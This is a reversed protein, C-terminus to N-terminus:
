LSIAATGAVAVLAGIWAMKVPAVGSRIWVMPLIMIPTMSSLTTVIGVNGNTRAGMLLAMGLTTGFFSSGVAIAADKMRFRYHRHFAQIPLLALAVAGTMAFAALMQWRALRLVDVRGKLESVLMGSLAICAAASLALIESLLVIYLGPDTPSHQQRDKGNGPARNYGQFM